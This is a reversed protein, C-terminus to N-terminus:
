SQPSRSGLRPVPRTGNWVKGDNLCAPTASACGTPELSSARSRTPVRRPRRSATAVSSGCCIRGRFLASAAAPTRAIRRSERLEGALIRSAIREENQTPGLGSPCGGCFLEYSDRQCGLRGVRQNAPERHTVRARACELTHGRRGGPLFDGIGFDGLQLHGNRDKFLNGPKIDGHVVGRGHCYSLATMLRLGHERVMGCSVPEYPEVLPTALPMSTAEMPLVDTLVEYLPMVASCDAVTTNTAAEAVQHDLADADYLKLAMTGASRMGPEISPPMRARASDVRDRVPRRVQHQHTVECQAVTVRM